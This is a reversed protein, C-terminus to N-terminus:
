SGGQIRMKGAGAGAPTAVLDQATVAGAGNLIEIRVGGTGDDLVASGGTLCGISGPAVFVRAGVRRIMPEASKGFVLFSAASIDEEDLVAKDHVFVAVRGDLIEISRSTASSLSVFVKLRLRAREREVFRDIKEPTANACRAAAREFLAAERPDAGVLEQAWGVVVRELAGDNGLYIVKEAQADDVLYQAARALGVLDDYAPGLIGLRM